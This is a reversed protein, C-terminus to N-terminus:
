KRRRVFGLLGLGGFALALMSSPEPIMEFSTIGMPYMKGSEEAVLTQWTGSAADLKQIGGSVAASRIYDGEATLWLAQPYPPVGNYYYPGTWTGNNDWGLLYGDWRLVRIADTGPMIKIDTANSTTALTKDYTLDANWRKIATGTVSFLQGQSDFDLAKITGMPDAGSSLAQFVSSDSASYWKLTQTTEDAVFVKGDRVALGKGYSLGSVSWGAVLTGNNDYKWVSAATTGSVDTTVKVYVDGTVKDQVVALPKVGSTIAFDGVYNWSNDFRAVKYSDRYAVLFDASAVSGMVLVMALATLLVRACVLTKAGKM